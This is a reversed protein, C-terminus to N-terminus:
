GSRRDAGDVLEQLPVIPAQDVPEISRQTAPNYTRLSEINDGIFEARIPHQAGAPYFDVVGGRASFEGPEDTPDQRRYGALALRDALDTPSIEDDPHLVLGAQKLRAPPSLRPM